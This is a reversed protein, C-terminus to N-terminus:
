KKASKSKASIAIRKPAPLEKYPVTVKLVGDEFSANVGEKDINKPLAFRRYYQSVSERVLYKREKDEEKEQHEAKIELEDGHQEISIENENFNPLQAEIVLEKDNSYVDTAPMLSSTRGISGFTDNFLSNVQEHLTNLEAFPDWRVLSSRM